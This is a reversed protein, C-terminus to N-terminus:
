QGPMQSVPLFLAQSAPLGVRLSIIVSATNVLSKLFAAQPMLGVLSVTSLIAAPVGVSLFSLIIRTQGTETVAQNAALKSM